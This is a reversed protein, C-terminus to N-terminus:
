RSIGCGLSKVHPRSVARGSLAEDLADALYTQTVGPRGTRNKVMWSDDPSGSFLVRGAPDILFTQPTVVAGLSAAVAGKPDLVVAYPLGHTEVNGLFNPHDARAAALDLRNAAVAYFTVRRAYKRALPILSFQECDRVCPCDVSWFYIVKWGRRATLDLAKGDLGTAPLAELHKAATPGNPQGLCTGGLLCLALTGLTASRLLATYSVRIGKEWM